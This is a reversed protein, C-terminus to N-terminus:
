SREQATDAMLLVCCEAILHDVLLVVLGDGDKVHVLRVGLLQLAQGVRHAPVRVTKVALGLIVVERSSVRAVSVQPPWDPGGAVGQGVLRLQGDGVRVIGYM